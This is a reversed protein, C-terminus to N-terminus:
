SAGAKLHNTFYYAPRAMWQHFLLCEWVSNLMIEINEKIPLINIVSYDTQKQKNNM